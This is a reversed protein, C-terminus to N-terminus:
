KKLELKTRRSCETKCKRGEREEWPSLKVNGCVKGWIADGKTDHLM